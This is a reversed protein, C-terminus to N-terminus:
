AGEKVRVQSFVTVANQGWVGFCNADEIMLEYGISSTIKMQNDKICATICYDVGVRTNMKSENIKTMAPASLVIATYYPSGTAPTVYTFLFCVNGNTGYYHEDDLKKYIIQFNRAIYGLSYLYKIETIQPSFSTIWYGSNNIEKPDITGNEDVTMAPTSRSDVIDSMTIPRFGYRVKVRNWFASNADVWFGICNANTITSILAITNGDYLQLIDGYQKIIVRDLTTPSIDGQTLTAITSNETSTFSNTSSNYKLIFLKEGDTAYYTSTDVKSFIIMTNNNINAKIKDIGIDLVGVSYQASNQVDYRVNGNTVSFDSLGRYDLFDSESMTQYIPNDSYLSDYLCEYYDESVSETFVVRKFLNLLANKTEDTIANTDSSGSNNSIHLTVTTFLNWSANKYVYVNCLDDDTPVFYFTNVDPSNVTPVGNTYEGSTCYYYKIDTMGLNHLQTDTYKNALSMALIDM